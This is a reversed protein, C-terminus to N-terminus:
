SRPPPAHPPSVRSVPQEPAAALMLSLDPVALAASPSEPIGVFGLLATLAHQDVDCCSELVPAGPVTPKKKPLPCIHGPGGEKCCAMESDTASGVPQSGCCVATAAAAIVGVQLALTMAALWALRARFFQM